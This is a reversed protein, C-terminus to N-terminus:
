KVILNYTLDFLFINPINGGFNIKYTGKELKKTPVYYGDAVVMTLGSEAGFLADSPFTVDFAETHIRYKSLDINVKTDNVKLYYSDMQDADMSATQHLEEITKLEPFEAFSAEGIIIPILISLGSPIVCTRELTGEGMTPLYFVSTNELDQGYTCKEGTNDIWPHESSPISLFIKWYTKVLDAPSLGYVNSGPPFFSITNNVEAEGDNIIFNLLVSSSLILLLFAYIYKSKWIM